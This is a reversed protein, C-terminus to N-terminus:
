SVLIFVVNFGWKKSMELEMAFLLACKRRFYKIMKTRLLLKVSISCINQM